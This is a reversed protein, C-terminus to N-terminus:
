GLESLWHHVASVDALRYAAETAEPGVKVGFGGAKAAAGFGDEDTTDDGVFVPVRSSFPKVTAFLEIALAKSVGRQRIEFIMHGEVAYLDSLGAIVELALTEARAHQEPHQRFHLVLAGGKDEILLPDGARLRASLRRKAVDFDSSFPRKRLDGAAPRVERGHVGSAPLELPALYHDLDSIRRGTVLALAGGLRDRTRELLERSGLRLKVSQPTPAFDVFTGDFDLFLAHRERDLRPPARSPLVDRLERELTEDPNRM